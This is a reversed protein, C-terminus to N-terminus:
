YKLKLSTHFRHGQRKMGDEVWAATDEAFSVPCSVNPTVITGVPSTTLALAKQQLTFLYLQLNESNKQQLFMGHPLVKTAKCESPQKM